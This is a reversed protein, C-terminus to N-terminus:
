AHVPALPCTPRCLPAPPPPPPEGDGGVVVLGDLAQMEELTMAQVEEQAHGAASTVTAQFKVSASEFIPVCTKSWVQALVALHLCLHRVLHPTREQNSRREDSMSALRALPPQVHTFPQATRVQEARRHGGFPNVYVQVRRPRCGTSLAKIRENIGKAWEMVVEEAAHELILQM